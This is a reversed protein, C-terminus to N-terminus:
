RQAIGLALGGLGAVIFAAPVFLLTFLQHIPLDPGAGREVLLVELSGLTIGALIVAPAFSLAGAWTMRRTEASGTIHAVARGWAGGGVFMLVLVPLASLLNRTAEPMHMPLGNLAFGLLLGVLQSGLLYLATALASRM